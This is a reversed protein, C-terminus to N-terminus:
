KIGFDYTGFGWQREYCHFCETKCPYTFNKTAIPDNGGCSNLYPYLWDMLGEYQFMGAVFKKNIHKLPQYLRDNCSWLPSYREKWRSNEVLHDFGLRVCENKPPASITGYIACNIYGRDIIDMMNLHDILVKTKIDKGDNFGFEDKKAREIWWPDNKDVGWYKIPQINADPYHKRIKEYADKVYLVGSLQNLEIGYIPTIEIDPIYKALLCFILSSDTGSSFMIGIKKIKQLKKIDFIVTQTEIPWDNEVMFKIYRKSIEVKTEPM